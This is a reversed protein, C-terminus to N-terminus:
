NGKGERVKFSNNLPAQNSSKVFKGSTSALSAARAGDRMEQATLMEEEFEM